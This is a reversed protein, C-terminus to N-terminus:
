RACTSNTSRQLHAITSPAYGFQSPVIIGLLSAMAAIMAQHHVTHSFVFALERAVITDLQIEPQGACVMHSMGLPRACEAPSLDMLRGQMQRILDIAADRRSEIATGRERHDYNLEGEDVAALLSAVHDLCHRVQAGISCRFPGVPSFMYQSDDMSRIVRAIQGLLTVLSTTLPHVQDTQECIVNSANDLTQIM